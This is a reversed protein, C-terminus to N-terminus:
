EHRLAQIPDMYAARRAPYLGFILGVAVSIGFALLPSWFQVNAPVDGMKEALFAGGVGLVIGIFGGTCALVMTEILFQSIIDVRRAGLARRIGIERTRETVTALMINMIGIGGVLLSISAIATLVLNFMRQTQEAKELLDLPVTMAVEDQKRDIMGELIRSIPKVQLTSAAALTLQTIEVKEPPQSSTRDFVINEGFRKQDTPFPIYVDRGYDQAPLNGGLGPTSARPRVVGIVRYYQDEGIRVFKGLPDELPFLAEAAGAGLVTVAATRDCDLSTIFRGSRMRIENLRQYEPTVGVVRGAVGHDLRRIERRHDRVPAIARVDPIVGEVRRLDDLTLGYRIAGTADGGSNADAPKVSRLIINTAGLQNIAQVAEQRAGDGVALMVIVSAVGFVVGLVTLLSRLKHLKLSQVGLRISRFWHIMM